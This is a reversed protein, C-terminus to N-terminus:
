INGDHTLMHHRLSLMTKREEKGKGEEKNKVEEKEKKKKKMNSVSHKSEAMFHPPFKIFTLETCKFQLTVILIITCM